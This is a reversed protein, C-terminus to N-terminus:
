RQFSRAMSNDMKPVPDPERGELADRCASLVEEVEIDTMCRPNGCGAKFSTRYCPSCSYGKRVVYLDDTFPGTFGPNTPGFIGVIPIGAAAGMHSPGNCITLLLSLHEMVALLDVLDTEGMLVHVRDTRFREPVMAVIRRGIEKEAATGLLAFELEPEAESLRRIVSAFKEEGWRKHKSADDCGPAVGVVPRSGLFPFRRRISARVQDPADLSVNEFAEDVNIGAERVFDLHMRVKHRREDYVSDLGFESRNEMIGANYGYRAIPGVRVPAGTARALLGAMRSQAHVGLLAAPDRSRLRFALGLWGSVSDPELHWCTEGDGLVRRGFDRIAENRVVVDVVADDQDQLVKVVPSAMLFDGVGHHLLVQYIASSM